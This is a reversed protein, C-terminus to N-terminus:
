ETENRDDTNLYPRGKRPHCVACLAVGNNINWLEECDLAQEVTKIDNIELIFAFSDPAHHANLTGGRRGCKQCTFDDRTFVDSRWLRYKFCCRIKDSLSTRGGKWNSNNEGKFVENRKRWREDTEVSLGKNWAVQGKHSESLRERLEASRELREDTFKTKGKCWSERAKNARRVNKKAEESRILRKDTEKTLGKSWPIRGKCSNSINKVRIDTEKTLGKNWAVQGKHSESMKKVRKDTDKTLGRSWAVRSNPKMEIM